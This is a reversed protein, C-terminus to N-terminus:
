ARLLAMVEPWADADAVAKDRCFRNCFGIVQAGFQALSDPAIPDGSFPCDQNTADSLREAGVAQAPLPTPGPWPATPLDMDYHSQRHPEALGRARWQRFVGDALHDAVYALHADPMPLSYTAIRTAVPAFFADVASYSGFLWPGEEGFSRAWEWLEALRALDSAVESSTEFSPYVHALNMPCASRLAGFGSHMEAVLVRACDRAAPDKPWHGADPHREALTEVMAQSDWVVRGDFAMAPVTRAAGFGSLMEGFAPTRMPAHEVEVPLGFKAFLLWGRLSWSSYTRDGIALRYTM